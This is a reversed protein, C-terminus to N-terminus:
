AGYGLNARLRNAVVGVGAAAAAQGAEGMAYHGALNAAGRVIAGAWGHRGEVPAHQVADLQAQLEQGTRVGHERLIAIDDPEPTWETERQIRPARTAPVYEAPDAYPLEAFADARSIRNRPPAADIGAMEGLTPVAAPLRARNITMPPRGPPRVIEEHVPAPGIELVQRGRDRNAFAGMAAGALVGGTLGAVNGAATGLGGAVGRVFGEAGAYALGAAANGARGALGLAGGLIATGIGSGPRPEDPAWPDLAFDVTDPEAAPAIDPVPEQPPTPLPVAPAEEEDDKDPAYVNALLAPITRKAPRAFVTRGPDVYRRIVEGNHVYETTHTLPDSYKRKSPIRPALSNGFIPNGHTLIYDINGKGRM